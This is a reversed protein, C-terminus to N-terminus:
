ICRITIERKSFLEDEELARVFDVTSSSKEGNRSREVRASAIRACVFGMGLGNRM